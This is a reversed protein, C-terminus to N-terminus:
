VPVPGHAVGCFPAIWLLLDLVVPLATVRWESLMHALLDM